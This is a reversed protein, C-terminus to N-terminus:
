RMAGSHASIGSNTSAVRAAMTAECARIVAAKETVLCAMWNPMKGRM